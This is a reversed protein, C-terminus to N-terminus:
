WWATPFIPSLHNGGRVVATHLSEFVCGSRKQGHLPMRLIQM